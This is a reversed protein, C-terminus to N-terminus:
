REHSYGAAALRRIIRLTDEQCMNRAILEDVLESSSAEEEETCKLVYGEAEALAEIQTLSLGLDDINVVIALEDELMVSGDYCISDGDVTISVNSTDAYALEVELEHYKNIIVTEM